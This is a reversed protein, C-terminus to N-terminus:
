MLSAINVTFIFQDYTKLSILQQLTSDLRETTDIYNSLSATFVTHFNIILYLIDKSM